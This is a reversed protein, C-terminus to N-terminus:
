EKDRKEMLKRLVDNVEMSSGAASASATSGTDDNTSEPAPEGESSGSSSDASTTEESNRSSTSGVYKTGAGITKWPGRQEREFGAGVKLDIMNTGESLRVGAAQIEVVQFSSIRSGSSLAKRYSSDTGDFFAMTKGETLLTGVLNFSEVRTRNVIRSRGDSNGVRGGSRNSDFINRDNVLKFSEYNLGTPATSRAPAKNTQTAAQGLLPLATWLSLALMTGSWRLHFAAKTKM